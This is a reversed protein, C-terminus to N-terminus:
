KVGIVVFLRGPVSIVIKELSSMGQSPLSPIFLSSEHIVPKYNNFEYIM